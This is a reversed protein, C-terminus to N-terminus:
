DAMLEAFWPQSSMYDRITAINKRDEDSGYKEAIILDINNVFANPDEWRKFVYDYQQAYGGRLINDSYEDGAKAEQIRDVIYSIVTSLESLFEKTPTM